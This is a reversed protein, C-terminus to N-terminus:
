WTCSDMGALVLFFPIPLSEFGLYGALSPFPLVVAIAVVMLSCGTLWLNPHSRLPNKRTRIIFIVLVQTALSEVFWGTHFLAEGADFVKLWVDTVRFWIV